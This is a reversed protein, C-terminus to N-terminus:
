NRKNLLFPKKKKPPIFRINRDPDEFNSIASTPSHFITDLPKESSSELKEEGDLQIIISTKSSESQSINEPTIKMIIEMKNERSASDINRGNIILLHTLTVLCSWLFIQFKRTWNEHPLQYNVGFINLRYLKLIIKM